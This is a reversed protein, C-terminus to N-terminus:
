KALTFGKRMWKVTSLHSPAASLQWIFMALVAWIFFRAM